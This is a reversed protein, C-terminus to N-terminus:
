VQSVPFFVKALSQCQKRWFGSNLLQRCDIFGIWYAVFFLWQKEIQDTAYGSIQRRAFKKTKDFFDFGFHASGGAKGIRGANHIYIYQEIVVRNHFGLVQSDRVRAQSVPSENKYRQRLDGWAENM